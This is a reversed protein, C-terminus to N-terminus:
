NGSVTHIQGRDEVSVDKGRFTGYFQADDRVQLRLAPSVVTAYVLGYGDIIVRSSKKGM